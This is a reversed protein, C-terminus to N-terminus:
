QLSMVESAYGSRSVYLEALGKEICKEALESLNLDGNKMRILDETENLHTVLLAAKCGPLLNLDDLVPALLSDADEFRAYRLSGQWKNTVNTMDSETVGLSEASCENALLGPGHKTLYSRTVYFVKDPVMGWEGCLKVINTLGTKSATVNPQSEECDADLLLGQGTEFIVADYGNIFEGADDVIHLLTINELIKATFGELIEEDFIEDPVDEGALGLEDLRGRVYGDRVRRIRDALSKEDSSFVDGVTIGYGARTRLDAENIGMGCSGHRSDGRKTEIAMNVLVDFFLTINAHADAYVDPVFGASKRFNETEEEIKYLDPYFSEAWFTDAGSMSGSSLEHFVFREGTKKEVTHGSQAGGNHRVVICKEHEFLGALYDTALGKGEDGYGRGIVAFTKPHM